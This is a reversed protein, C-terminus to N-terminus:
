HRYLNNTASGAKWYGNLLGWDFHNAKWAVTNEAEWWVSDYPPNPDLQAPNPKLLHRRSRLSNIGPASHCDVCRDLIRGGLLSEPPPQEKASHEFSDWEQTQFVPLEAETPAVARLGGAQGAFLQPQSLRIEYFDQETRGAPWDVDVRNRDHRATITRYVRIQISETIPTSVLAGDRDFLMMQRVLAVQTGVPFQPLAPNLGGQAPDIEAGVWPQPVDWLIHFYDLTAQRGQPLRVFVLFRSRGSVSGVHNEAVPGQDGKICVWPGRPQFLEPPLFVRDRNAPDYEKAFAGSAAAQAYNDPLANIERAGLALRRMVEALRVQLERREARHDSDRRASWDFVAWLKSQLLARKAPDRIQNEAHTQLFEDLIARVRQHSFGSLLHETQDWLLPDLGDAGYIAGSPDRRILLADYLRNWIHKPNTDYINPISGSDELNPRTAPAQQFVAPLLLVSLVMTAPLKM